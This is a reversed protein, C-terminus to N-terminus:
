PESEAPLTTNTTHPPINLAGTHPYVPNFHSANTLLSNHAVGVPIALRLFLGALHPLLPFVAPTAFLLGPFGLLLAHGLIALEYPGLSLLTKWFAIISPGRVM